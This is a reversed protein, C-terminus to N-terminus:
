SDKSSAMKTSPRTSAVQPHCWHLVGTKLLISSRHLMCVRSPVAPVRPPCECGNCRKTAQITISSKECRLSRRCWILTCRHTVPGKSCCRGATSGKGVRTQLPRPTTPGRWGALRATWGKWRLVRAAMRAGGVITIILVVVVEM